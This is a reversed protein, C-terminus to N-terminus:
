NETDLYPVEELCRVAIAAMKVIEDRLLESRSEYWIGRIRSLKEELVLLHSAVFAYQNLRPNDTRRWAANQRLREEDILRYIKDRTM